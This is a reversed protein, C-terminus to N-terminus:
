HGTKRSIYRVACLTAFWLLLCALTQLSSFFAAPRLLGDPNTFDLRILIYYPTLGVFWYGMSIDKRLSFWYVIATMVAFLTLAVNPQIGFTTWIWARLPFMWLYIVAQVFFVFLLKKGHFTNGNILWAVFWGLGIGTSAIALVVMVIVAALQNGSIAGASYTGLVGFYTAIAYGFGLMMLFLPICRMVLSKVKLCLLLQIACVIAMDILGWALPTLEGFAVLM